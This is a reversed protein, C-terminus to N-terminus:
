RDDKVTPPHHLLDGALGDVAPGVDEHDAIAAAAGGADDLGAADRAPERM